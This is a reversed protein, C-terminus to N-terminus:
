NRYMIKIKRKRYTWVIKLGRFFVRGGCVVASDPSGRVHSEYSGIKLLLNPFDAM